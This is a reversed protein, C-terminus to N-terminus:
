SGDCTLVLRYIGAQADDYMRAVITFTGTVPLSLELAPDTSSQSAADSHAILNGDPDYLELIGDNGPAIMSLTIHDGAQGEFIWQDRQGRVVIDGSRTENCTLVGSNTAPEPVSFVHLSFARSETEAGLIRITYAGPGPVAWVDRLSPQGITANVKSIPTDTADYLQAALYLHGLADRATLDIGVWQARESTFVYVERTTGPIYIADVPQNLQITRIKPPTPTTTRSAPPHPLRTPTLTVTQTMTPITGALIPHILSPTATSSPAVACGVLLSGIIWLVPLALIRWESRTQFLAKM